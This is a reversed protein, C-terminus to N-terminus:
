AADVAQNRRAVAHCLGNHLLNRTLTARKCAGVHAGFELQETYVHAGDAVGVPACRAGNGEREAVLALVNVLADDGRRIGLLKEAGHQHAVAAVVVTQQLVVQVVYLQRGLRLRKDRGGHTLHGYQANRCQGGGGGDAGAVVHGLAVDHRDDIRAAAAHAIDFAFGLCARAAATACRHELVEHFVLVM